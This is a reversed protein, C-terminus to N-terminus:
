IKWKENEQKMENLKNVLQEKNVKSVSELSEKEFEDIENMLKDSIEEIKLMQTEKALQVQRRLENCHEKYVYENDDINIKTQNLILKIRQKLSKFEENLENGTISENPLDISRNILDLTEAELQNM